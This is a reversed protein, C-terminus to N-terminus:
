FQGLACTMRNRARRWTCGRQPCCAGNELALLMWPRQKSLAKPNLVPSYQPHIPCCLCSEVIRESKQRAAEPPSVSRHAPSVRPGAFRMQSEEEVYATRIKNEHVGKRRELTTLHLAQGHALHVPIVLTRHRPGSRFSALLLSLM